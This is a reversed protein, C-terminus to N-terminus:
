NEIGFSVERLGYNSQGPNPLTNGIVIWIAEHHLLQISAPGSAATYSNVLDNTPHAPDKGSMAGVYIAVPGNLVNAGATLGSSNLTVGWIDLLTQLTAYGPVPSWSPSFAATPDEVHVLGSFDHTHVQYMCSFNEVEYTNNPHPPNGLMPAVPNVLGIAQPLALENGNYIIGVFTHLHFYQGTADAQDNL